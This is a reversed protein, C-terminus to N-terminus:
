RSSFSFLHRIMLSTTGIIEEGVYLEAAAVFFSINIQGVGVPLDEFPHFAPFDSRDM